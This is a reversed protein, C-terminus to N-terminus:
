YSTPNIAATSNEHATNIATNKQKTFAQFTNKACLIDLIKRSLEQLMEQKAIEIQPTTEFVENPQLSINRSTSVTQPTLIQKDAADSISITATYNLTYIRAEASSVSSTTSPTYNATVHLIPATANPTALLVVRSAKLAKKLIVEFQGYPNDTQYYVQHLQSPLSKATRLKFGCGSLFFLIILTLCVKPYFKTM